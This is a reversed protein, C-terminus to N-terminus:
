NGLEMYIKGAAANPELFRIKDISDLTGGFANSASHNYWAADDMLLLWGNAPIRLTFLEENGDGENCTLEIDVEINSKFFAYVFNTVVEGADVTPNWAITATSASLDFRKAWIENLSAFIRTPLRDVSKVGDIWTTKTLDFQAKDAM